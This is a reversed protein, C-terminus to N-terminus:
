PMFCSALKGSADMKRQAMSNAVAAVSLCDAASANALFAAARAAYMGTSRSLKSSATIPSALMPSESNEPQRQEEEADAQLVAVAKQIKTNLFRKGFSAGALHVHVDGRSSLTAGILLASFRNSTKQAMEDMQSHLHLSDTDLLVLVVFMVFCSNFVGLSCLFCLFLKLTM